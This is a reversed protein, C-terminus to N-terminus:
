LNTDNLTAGYRQTADFVLLFGQASSIAQRRAECYQEQGATDIFTVVGIIALILMRSSSCILKVRRECGNVVIRGTYEDQLTPDATDEDYFQDSLFRTILSSKGVGGGGLVAITFDEIEVVEPPEEEESMEKKKGRTRIEGSSAVPLATVSSPKSKKRPADRTSLIYNSSEAISNREEFPFNLKRMMEARAHLKLTIM